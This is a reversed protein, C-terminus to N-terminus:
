MSGYADDVQSSTVSSNCYKSSRSRMSTSSAVASRAPMTTSVFWKVTRVPDRVNSAAPNRRLLPASEPRIRSISLSFRSSYRWFASMMRRALIRNPPTATALASGPFFTVGSRTACVASASSSIFPMVADKTSASRGSPRIPMLARERPSMLTWSTMSRSPPPPCRVLAAACISPVIPSASSRKIPMKCSISFSSPSISHFHNKQLVHLALPFLAFDFLHGVAVGVVKQDRPSQGLRGIFRIQLLQLVLLLRLLPLLFLFPFFRPRQGFPQLFRADADLGLGAFAALDSSRR